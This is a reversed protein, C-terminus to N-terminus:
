LLGKEKLSDKIEKHYSWFKVEIERMIQQFEPLESVNEFLPDDMGLFLIYWYPYKEQEAFLKMNEIARSTDGVYSYYAALSLNKYISQDNEAFELYEQLYKQSAEPKGLEALCVGLKGKESIYLVLGQAQTIEYMRSFYVYASEFDKMYFSLVGLEKMIDARSTDQLLLEKLMERTEQLTNGAALLIYPRLFKTYGNEPNYQLSLEMYQKAEEIFGSQMFANSLTLYTNSVDASDHAAFDLELGMLAYELYKETNPVFRSYYDALINIVQSSNPHYELAKELYPLALEYEARVYHYMAKAYLSQPLKPDSLLAQDAHYDIKDLYLKEAQFIDLFAYAISLDAHARAFEPDLEIAKEFLPIAELLGPRTERYFPELGKLFYDYAELNQTPIKEIQEAEQPTIIAQIEGTISRAVELQLQFIDGAERKYRKSWLHKDRNADILQISLLIQNGIKQGSGEVLYNVNLERGIEPTSKTDHRYKEVSTRSIVRLDEIAQLNNLLSEMLGNILYINTSDNSDNKFPLVAISKERDSLDPGRNKGTAINLVILAAIIVFSILSAVKWGRTEAVDHKEGPDRLPRTRIWGGEPKVDYIWSLVVTIIFGIVLLVIVMTLTWDPLRLPEVVISMLELIVFASAAYVTIVRTVKRRKLEQFFGGLGQQSNASGKTEAHAYESKGVEGPPYGYHERFCKIFYSTSSFGVRYSVESVNLSEDKLMEMANKLRVQRIFVSVSVHSLSKIKRLLNSRSMGVERALESVGFQENSINEEIIATVRNLFDNQM